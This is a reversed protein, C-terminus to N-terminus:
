HVSVWFTTKVALVHDGPATISNLMDGVSARTGIPEAAARNQQWVVFLTSGPKWEWRLVVNSRFSRANFDRTGAVDFPRLEDTRPAILEGPPGYAGSAAFPEAYVDVNLDPKFTYNLRFQASVTSRDVRAFIYRGGFTAASGGDLTTVYQRTNVERVVTPAISMQWRPSPRLGAEGYLYRLSGGDRRTTYYVGAKLHTQQAAPSAVEVQGQRAAALRMLPGGRTLNASDIAGFSWFRIDTTWFNLWTLNVQPSWQDSQPDGGFNWEGYRNFNLAYNRLWRNPQTERYTLLANATIGDAATLRGVDNLEFEPSEINSAMAWVWHTGGTRAFAVYAHGGDM